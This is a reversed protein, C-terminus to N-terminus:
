IIYIENDAPHLVTFYLGLSSPDPVSATSCLKQVNPKTKLQGPLRLRRRSVQNKYLNQKNQIEVPVPINAFKIYLDYYHMTSFQRAKLFTLLWFKFVEDTEGCCLMRSGVGKELAGAFEFTFLIVAHIVTFMMMSTCTNQKTLFFFLFFSLLFFSYFLFLFFVGWECYVLWSKKRAWAKGLFVFLFLAFLFSRIRFSLSTAKPYLTQAAYIKIRMGYTDVFKVLGVSNM